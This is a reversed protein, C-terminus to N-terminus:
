LVALGAPCRLDGANLMLGGPQRDVREQRARTGSLAPPRPSRARLIADPPVANTVALVARRIEAGAPLRPHMHASAVIVAARIRSIRPRVCADALSLLHCAAFDADRIGQRPMRSM